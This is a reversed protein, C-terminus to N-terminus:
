LEKSLFVAKTQFSNYGNMGVKRKQNEKIKNLLEYKRNKMEEELIKDIKGVDHEIYLKNLEEKSYDLENINNLILQRQLFLEDLKEYNEAKVIEMIILTINKYKKFQEDIELEEGM